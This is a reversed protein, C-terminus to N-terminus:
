LVKAISKYYLEILSAKEVTSNYEKAPNSDIIQELNNGNKIGIAIRSRITKLMNLYGILAQKDSIQGHGPIIRTSDNSLALIYECAAIMGDISGGNAADIFPMGYLVFIDGTHLVNSNRFYVVADSNTHANQLHFVSVIEDNIYINMTDKFTISPLGKKPTAAQLPMFIPIVQDESLKDRCNEHAIITAGQNVFAENNEVHDFHWHTNILYKLPQSGLFSIRSQISDIYDKRHSDVLLIGDKGILVGINGGFDNSLVFISKSLTDIVIKESYQNQSFLSLSLHVLVITTITKM